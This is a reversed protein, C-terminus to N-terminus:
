GQPTADYSLSLFNAKDTNVTSANLFVTASSIPFAAVKRLVGTELAKCILLERQTVATHLRTM